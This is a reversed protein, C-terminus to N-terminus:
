LLHTRYFIVSSRRILRNAVKKTSYGRLLATLTDRFLIVHSFIEFIEPVLSLSVSLHAETGISPSFRAAFPLGKQAKLSIWATVNIRCFSVFQIKARSMAMRDVLVDYKCLQFNKRWIMWWSVTLETADRILMRRAHRKEGVNSGWRTEHSRLNRPSTEGEKPSSIYRNVPDFPM